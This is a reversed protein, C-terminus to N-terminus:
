FHIVTTFHPKPRLYHLDQDGDHHDDTEERAHHSEIKRCQNGAHDSQAHCASAAVGDRDGNGHQDTGNHDPYRNIDNGQLQFLGAFM